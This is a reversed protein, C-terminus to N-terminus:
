QPVLLREGTGDLRVEKMWGVDTTGVILVRWWVFGETTTLTSGPPSNTAVQVRDGSCIRRIIRNSAYNGATSETPNAWLALTCNPSTGAAATAVAITGSQL